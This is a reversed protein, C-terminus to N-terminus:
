GIEPEVEVENVYFLNEESGKIQDCESATGVLLIKGCPQRRAVFAVDKFTIKKM